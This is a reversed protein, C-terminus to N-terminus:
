VAGFGDAGAALGEVLVGFGAVECQAPIALFSPGNQVPWRSVTTPRTETSFKTSRQRLSKSFFTMEPRAM